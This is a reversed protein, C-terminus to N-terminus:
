FIPVCLRCSFSLNSCPHIPVMHKLGNPKYGVRELRFLADEEERTRSVNNNNSAYNLAPAVAAQQNWAVDQDDDDFNDFLSM